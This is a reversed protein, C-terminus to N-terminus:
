CSPTPGGARAQVIQYPDVMFDKRLLPLKCAARAKALDDMSGDFFQPETLVSM